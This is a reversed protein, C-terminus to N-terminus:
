DTAMKRSQAFRMEYVQWIVTFVSVTGIGYYYGFEDGYMGTRQFVSAAIRSLPSAVGAKVLINGCFRHAEWMELKATVYVATVFVIYPAGLVYKATSAFHDWGSLSGLLFGTIDFILICVITIRGLWRHITWFSPFRIWDGLCKNINGIFSNVNGTSLPYWYKIFLVPYTSTCLTGQAHQSILEKQLVMLLVSLMAFYSHEHFRQIPVQEVFSMNMGVDSSRFLTKGTAPEVSFYYPWVMLRVMPVMIIPILIWKLRQNYLDTHDLLVLSIRGSM